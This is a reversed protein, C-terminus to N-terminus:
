KSYGVTKIGRKVPVLFATDFTYTYIIIIHVTYMFSSVVYNDSFDNHDCEPSRWPSFVWFDDFNLLSILVSHLRASSEVTQLLYAICGNNNYHGIGRNSILRTGGDRVIYLLINCIIIHACAAVFFFLFQNGADAPTRGQGKKVKREEITTKKARTRFTWLIIIIIIIFFFVSYYLSIYKNQIYYAHTHVSPVMSRCSVRTPLIHFNTRVSFIQRAHDNIINNDRWCHSRRWPLSDFNIAKILIAVCDRTHTYVNYV